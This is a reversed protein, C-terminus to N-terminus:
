FSLQSVYVSFLFLSFIDYQLVNVGRVMVATNNTPMRVVAIVYYALALSLLLFLAFSTYFRVTLLLDIADYNDEDEYHLILIIWIAYFVLAFVNLVGYTTVVRRKYKADWENFYVVRAFFVVLLSFIAFQINIPTRDIDHTLYFFLGLVM